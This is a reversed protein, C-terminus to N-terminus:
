HNVSHVCLLIRLMINNQLVFSEFNIFNEWKIAFEKLQKGATKPWLIGNWYISKAENQLRCLKQSNETPPSGINWRMFVFNKVENLNIETRRIKKIPNGLHYSLTFTNTNHRDIFIWAVLFCILTFFSADFPLFFYESARKGGIEM